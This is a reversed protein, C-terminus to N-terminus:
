AFSALDAKFKCMAPDSVHRIYRNIISVAQLVEAYTPIPKVLM